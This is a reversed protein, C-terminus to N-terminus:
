RRKWKQLARALWIACASTSRPCPGALAPASAFYAGEGRPPSPLPSPFGERALKNIEQFALALPGKNALVVHMGKRLAARVLDLGPQGHQLNVPTAELLMDAHTTHVLDNISSVTLPARGHAEVFSSVGKRTAKHESLRIADIGDADVIAGTSDAAGVLMLDLSHVDRLVDRQSDMLRLFNRGVNGLGALVLRVTQM